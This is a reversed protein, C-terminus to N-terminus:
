LLAGLSGPGPPQYNREPNLQRAQACAPKETMEITTPRTNQTGLLTSKEEDIAPVVLDSLANM